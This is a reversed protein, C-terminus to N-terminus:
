LKRDWLCFAWMGNCKLLFETGEAVLGKLLIETDTNTRFYIGKKELERRLEVFNYIEGNYTLVYRKDDSFFPQNASDSLDLISLRTHCITIPYENPESLWFNQSDPGRHHLKRIMKKAIASSRKGIIGGIGCM